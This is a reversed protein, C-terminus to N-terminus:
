GEADYVNEEESLLRDQPECNFRRSLTDPALASLIVFGGDMVLVAKTKRGSTADICLDKERANQILRRIPSADPNVIAVVKASSAVNGFGINIFANM